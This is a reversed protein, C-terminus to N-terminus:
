EVETVPSFHLALRVRAESGPKSLGVIATRSFPVYPPCPLATPQTGGVAKINSRAIL